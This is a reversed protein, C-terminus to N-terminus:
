PHRRSQELDLAFRHPRQRHDRLELRIGSADSETRPEGEIGPSRRLRGRLPCRQPQAAACHVADRRRGPPGRPRERQTGSEHIGGSFEAAVAAREHGPQCDTVLTGDAILQVGRHLRTREVVEGRHGARVARDDRGGREPERGPAARRAPGPHRDRDDRQQAEHHEHRRLRADDAGRGHRDHQEHREGASSPAAARRRERRRHDHEEHGIGPVRPVVAERQRDRGRAAQDQEGRREGRSESAHHRCRERDHQPNRDRRLEGALRDEHEELGDDRERADRRVQQGRRRCRRARDQAQEGAEDQREHGRDAVGERLEGPEGGAPDRGERVGGRVHRERLQGPRRTCRARRQQEDGSRDRQPEHEPAALPAWQRRERQGEHEEHDGAGDAPGEAGPHQGPQQSRGVPEDHGAVDPLAVGHQEPGAPARHEDVGARLRRREPAAELEGADIADPQEHERVPIQVVDPSHRGHGISDVGHQVARGVPGTRAPRESREDLAPDLRDLGFGAPVAFEVPQAPSHEPGLGSRPGAVVRADHEGDVPRLRTHQQQAIEALRRLDAERLLELGLPGTRELEHLHGVVARGVLVLRQVCAQSRHEAQDADAGVVAVPM